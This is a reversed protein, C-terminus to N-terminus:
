ASSRRSGTRRRRRAPAPDKRAKTGGGKRRQPSPSKSAGGNGKKVPTRSSPAAFSRRRISGVEEEAENKEDEKPPPILTRLRVRDEPYFGLSEMGRAEEEASVSLDDPEEDSEQNAPIIVFRRDGELLATFDALSSVEYRCRKGEKVVEEWLEKVPIIGERHAGLVREAENLCREFM